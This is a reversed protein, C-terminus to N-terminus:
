TYYQKATEGYIVMWKLLNALPETTAPKRLTTGAYLEPSYVEVGSCYETGDAMTFIAAVYLADDLQKAPIGEFYAVYEYGYNASFVETISNGMLYYTANTKSLPESEAELAAYTSGSWYYFSVSAGVPLPSGQNNILQYAFTLKPQIMGTLALSRATRKANHQRFNVTMNASPTDPINLLSWAWQMELHESALLGQDVWSKLGENALFDTKYNFYVQAAAGYNLMAALLPKLAQASDTTRTFQNDTYTLVSYEYIDGYYSIGDITIYTRYYIKDAYEAAAIGHSYAYYEQVNDSYIGGDALKSIATATDIGADDPHPMEKESWFLIRGHELVDRKSLILDETSPMFAVVAKMYIMDKLSLNKARSVGVIVSTDTKIAPTYVHSTTVNTETCGTIMPSRPTFYKGTTWWGSNTIYNGAYIGVNCPATIRPTKCIISVDKVNCDEIRYTGTGTIGGVSVHKTGTKRASSIFVQIQSTKHGDFTCQRLSTIDQHYPGLDIGAIGGANSENVPSQSLINLYNGHVHCNFVEGTHELRGIIGGTQTGYGTHTELVGSKIAAINGNTIDVVSNAIRLNNFSCGVLGGSTLESGTEALSLIVDQQMSNSAVLQCDTILNGVEAINGTNNSGAHSFGIIGGTSVVSYMSTDNVNKGISAITTDQLLINCHSITTKAANGFFAATMGTDTIHNEIASNIGHFTCNKVISRSHDGRIRGALGGLQIQTKQAATQEQAILEANQLTVTCDSLSSSDLKGAIGGVYVNSRETNSLALQAGFTANSITVNCQSLTVNSGTGTIVGLSINSPATTIIMDDAVHVNLNELTAYQLVPFLGFSINKFNSSSIDSSPYLTITHGNGYLHGRFPNETCGIGWFYEDSNQFYLEVNATLYYDAGLLYQIKDEESQYYNPIPFYSLDRQRLYKEHQNYIYETKAEESSLLRSLTYFDESSSLRIPQEDDFASVSIQLPILLLVWFVIISLRIRCNLINAQQRM